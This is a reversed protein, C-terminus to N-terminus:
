WKEADRTIREREEPSLGFAAVALDDLAQQEDASLGTNRAALDEGIRHLEARVSAPPAPLSRLHGIKVQPMGLRADRNRYYHSWRVVRSNLWALLQGASFTPSAFAALLTNRFGIGDSRAAIPVRAKQRIVVDVRQWEAPPRLRSGFHAPDAWISPVGLRFATIDAGVRLPTTHQADPAERFYATDGSLTQLGREGFTEPPFPAADLRALIRTAEDDVDPREIPWADSAGSRLRAPRYTGHLVMSPQSVGRFSDEGLDPLGPDCVVARDFAARTPAYGKLEAMSSPLVVGLRSDPHGVAAIRELFLGQLNKYGAFAEYAHEYWARRPDAIPQAAKGAYSVWPPNGVIADFGRTMARM